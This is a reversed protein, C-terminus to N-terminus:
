QNLARSLFVEILKHWAPQETFKKHDALLVGFLQKQNKTLFLREMPMM